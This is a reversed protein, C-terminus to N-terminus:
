VLLSFSAARIYLLDCLAEHSCLHKHDLVPPPLPRKDGTRLILHSRQECRVNGKGRLASALNVAPVDGHERRAGAVPNAPVRGAEYAGDAVLEQHVQDVEVLVALDVAAPVVGLAQLRATGGTVLDTRERPSAAGGAARQPMVWVPSNPLHPLATTEEPLFVM